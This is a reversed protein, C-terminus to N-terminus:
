IEEINEPPPILGESPGTAVLLVRLTLLTLGMAVWMWSYHTPWFIVGVKAEGTALYDLWKEIAKWALVGVYGAGALLGTRLLLNQLPAPLLWSTADIRIYGGTRFGWPLAMMFTGVLLYDETLTYQFSLPKNVVYRLSADLTILVMMTLLLIGAIIVAVLEIPQLIRDIRAHLTRGARGIAGSM